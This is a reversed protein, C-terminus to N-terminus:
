HFGYEPPTHDLRDFLQAVPRKDSGGPGCLVVIRSAAGSASEHAAHAATLDDVQGRRGVFEPVGAPIQAPHISRRSRATPTTIAGAGAGWLTRHLERLEPGPDAGLEDALRRGTTAFLDPADAPRGSAALVRMLAAVLSEALPYRWMAETLPGVAVDANGRRRLRRAWTSLAALRRQGWASRM